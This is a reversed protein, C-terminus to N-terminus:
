EYISESIFRCVSPHMRRSQGLFLGFDPPVVAYFVPSDPRSADTNMLAYQLASLGANSASRSQSSSAVFIVPWYQRRFFARRM